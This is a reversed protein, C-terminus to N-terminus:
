KRFIESNVVEVAARSIDCTLEYFPTRRVFQFLIKLQKEREPPFFQIRVSRMARMVAESTEMRRISNGDGQKVYVVAKVPALINNNIGSTGSWPTGCAFFRGDKLILAPTDDNIYSTEEPYYKKWLASQTSKGGGSPAAFMLAEGSYCVCSSHFVIAGFAPACNLFCRGLGVFSRSALGEGSAGTDVLRMEATKFDSAFSLTALSEDGLRDQMVYLGNRKGYLSIQKGGYTEDFDLAAIKEALEYTIKLSPEGSPAKYPYMKELTEKPVNGEVAVNIDAIKFNMFSWLRM